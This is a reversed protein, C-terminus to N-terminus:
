GWPETNRIIRGAWSGSARSAQGKRCVDPASAVNAGFGDNPRRNTGGISEAPFTSRRSQALFPRKQSILM